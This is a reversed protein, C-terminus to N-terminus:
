LLVDLSAPTSVSSLFVVLSSNGSYNRRSIHVRLGGSWLQGFDVAPGHKGGNQRFDRRTTAGRRNEAVQDAQQNETPRWPENKDEGRSSYNSTIRATRAKDGIVEQKNKSTGDSLFM